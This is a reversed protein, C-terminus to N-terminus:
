RHGDLVDPRAGGGCGDGDDAARGRRRVDRGVEGEANRRRSESIHIGQVAYWVFASVAGVLCCIVAWPPLSLLGLGITSVATATLVLSLGLFVSFPNDKEAPFVVSVCTTLVAGGVCSLVVVGSSALRGADLALTIAFAPGAFVALLVLQARVLRVYVRWAPERAGPLARLPATATFQYLGGFSLATLAWLPNVSREALLLHVLVAVTLAAAAVTQASRLLCWDYPGLVRRLRVSGPLRLYRAQRVHQNPALVFALATLAAAVAVTGALVAWPGYADWARSVTTAWTRAPREDLYAGAVDQVMPTMLTSYYALLAFLALANLVGAMRGLGVLIWLRTLLQYVVSLALYALVAPIVVSATVPGASSPGLLVLASVVLSLLGAAAVVATMVAEYLLFAAARERNTVPLQHSLQLMGQANLFLVKVLLFAIQVWLLLSVTATDFLLRWVAAEQALPKLFLYSATCMAALLLVVGAAAFVRVPTSTLVGARLVRRRFFVLLMRALVASHGLRM